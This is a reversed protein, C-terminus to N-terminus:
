LLSLAVGLLALVMSFLWFRMAIQTEPMGGVEFHNHLPSMRFFRRGEGFRRRTYKFWGVQIIVSLAEAVFVGGVIPLLLWQNTQFALVALLAGLTLSGTDGMFVQAPFANYWLFGFCAGSITFALLVVQPQLQIFGIMGYAAFAIAATGAALSDMGDTLNVANAFGAIVLVAVPIYIWWSLEIPERIFPVYVKRQELLFYLILAAVLSIALLWAMKFRAKLGYQFLSELRRPLKIGTEGPALAPQDKNRSGVLTLMDDIAGLLGCSFVIGIPLLISLGAGFSRLPILIFVISVFIISILMMLGGMTPTGTKKLHSQPGDDRVLKGIKKMRLFALLPRGIAWTILFSLGALLLAVVITRSGLTTLTDPGSQAVIQAVIDQRLSDSMPIIQHMFPM